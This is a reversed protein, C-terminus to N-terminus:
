ERTREKYKIRVQKKTRIARAKAKQGYQVVCVVCVDMGGAPNSGAIGVISLGSVSPTFWEAVPLPM